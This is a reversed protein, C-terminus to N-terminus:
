LPQAKSPEGKPDMDEAEEQDPEGQEEQKEQSEQREEEMEECSNSNSSDAPTNPRSRKDSLEKDRKRSREKKELKRRWEKSSYGSVPRRVRLYASQLSEVTKQAKLAPTLAPTPAAQLPPSVPAENEENM